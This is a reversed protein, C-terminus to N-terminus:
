CRRSPRRHDPDRSALATLAKEVAEAPSTAVLLRREPRRDPRVLDWSELLVVPREHKLALAIESLTGWAGGIAIVADASLVLTLNRGQGFGTFVNVDVDENPPSEAATAGPLVGVTLGGGSHAGASAAAMVGGCGGTLVVAGRRALEAGTEFALRRLHEGCRGAGSVAIQPSGPPM